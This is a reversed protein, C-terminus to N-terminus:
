EVAKPFTALASALSVASAATTIVKEGTRRDWLEPDTVRRLDIKPGPPLLANFAALIQDAKKAGAMWGSAQADAVEAEKLLRGAVDKTLGLVKAQNAIARLVTFTGMPFEVGELSDAAGFLRSPLFFDGVHFMNWLIGDWLRGLLSPNEQGAKEGSSYVKIEELSAAPGYSLYVTGAPATTKIVWATGTMFVFRLQRRNWEEVFWTYTLVLSELITAIFIMLWWHFPVIAVTLTGALLVKGAEFIFMVAAIGGGLALGVPLSGLARRWLVEYVTTWRSPTIVMEIKEGAGLTVEMPETLYLRDMLAFVWESLSPSESTSGQWLRFTEYISAIAPIVVAVWVAIQALLSLAFGLFGFTKELRLFIEAMLALVLPWCFRNALQWVDKQGRPRTWYLVALDALFVPYFALLGGWGIKWGGIMGWAIFIMAGFLASISWGM